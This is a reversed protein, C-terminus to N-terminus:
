HRGGDVVGFPMGNRGLFLDIKSLTNDNLCIVIAHANQITQVM